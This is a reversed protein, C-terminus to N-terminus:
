GKHYYWLLHDFGNRSVMPPNKTAAAKRIEDVIDSYKQYDKFTDKTWKEKLYEDDWNDGLYARAYEPLIGGLVNDFISYNDQEDSDEFLYLCLYHCFKTTFSYNSRDYTYIISGDERKVVVEVTPNLLDILEKKKKNDTSKLLTLLQKSPMKKLNELFVKDAGGVMLHTSNERNIAAIAETLIEELNRSDQSVKKGDILIHKLQTVWYATSGPYPKQPKANPDGSKRYDSDISIMAEIRAVNNLSIKALNSKKSIRKIKYGESKKLEDQIAMTNYIDQRSKM